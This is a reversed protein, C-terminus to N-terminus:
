TMNGTKVYNLFVSFKDTIVDVINNNCFTKLYGTPLVHMKLVM